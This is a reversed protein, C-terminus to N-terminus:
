VREVQGYEFEVTIERGYINIVATVRDVQIDVHEVIGEINAFAGANIRVRDGAQLNFDVV